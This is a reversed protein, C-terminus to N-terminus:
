GNSRRADKEKRQAARKFEAQEVLGAGIVEAEPPHYADEKAV